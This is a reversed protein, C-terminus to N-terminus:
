DSAGGMSKGDALHEDSGVWQSSSGDVGGDISM